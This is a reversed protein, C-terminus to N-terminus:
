RAPRGSHKAVRRKELAGAVKSRGRALDAVASRHEDKTLGGFWELRGNVVCGAVPEKCVKQCGVTKVPVRAADLFRRLPRSGKCESCVLVRKM